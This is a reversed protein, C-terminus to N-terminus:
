SMLIILFIEKFNITKKKNCGKLTIKFKREGQKFKLKYVWKKKLSCRKQIVGYVWVNSQWAVLDDEWGYSLDM